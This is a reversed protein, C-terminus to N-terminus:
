VASVIQTVHSIVDEPAVKSYKEFLERAEPKLDTLDKILWKPVDWTGSSEEVNNAEAM